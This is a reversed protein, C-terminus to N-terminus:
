SSELIEIYDITWQGTLVGVTGAAVLQISLLSGAAVDVWLDVIDLDHDITVNIATVTCLTNVGDDRFNIPTNANITNASLNIHMGTIIKRTTTKVQANIETGFTTFGQFWTYTTAGFPIDFKGSYKGRHETWTGDMYGLLRDILNSNEDWPNGDAGDDTWFQYKCIEAAYKFLSEKLAIQSLSHPTIGLKSRDYQFHFGDNNKLAGRLQAVTPAANNEFFIHVDAFDSDMAQKNVSTGENSIILLTKTSFVARAYDTLEEYQLVDAAAGGVAFDGEDYMFGDIQPHISFTTDVEAKCQAVTKTAFGFDTALYMLVQVRKVKAAKLNNIITDFQAELGSSVGSSPNIVIVYEVTPHKEMAAILTNYSASASGYYAPVYLSCRTNLKDQTIEYNPIQSNDILGSSASNPSVRGYVM